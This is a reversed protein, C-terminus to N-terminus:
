RHLQVNKFWIMLSIKTKLLVKAVRHDMCLHWAADSCSSGSAALWLKYESKGPSCYEKCSALDQFRNSNGQCGGYYFPECQMTTMNFFYQRFMARCPGEEKPFRCIQPIEPSLSSKLNPNIWPTQAGEASFSCIYNLASQINNLIIILYLLFIHKEDNELHIELIFYM